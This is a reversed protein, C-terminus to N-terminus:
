HQLSFVAKGQAHQAVVRNHLQINSTKNGSNKLHDRATNDLTPHSVQAVLGLKWEKRLACSMPLLTM